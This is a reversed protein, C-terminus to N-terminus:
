IKEEGIVNLLWELEDVKSQFAQLVSSNTPPDFILRVKIYIYTKVSELLSSDAGLYDSWKEKDGTIFYGEEPGVGLTRLRSIATNIHIILDTDFCDDYVGPGLLTKIDNLISNDM